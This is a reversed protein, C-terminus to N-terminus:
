IKKLIEYLYRNIIDISLYFNRRVLMGEIRYSKKTNNLCFVPSGSLGNLNFGSANDQAYQFTFLGKYKTPSPTTAMLPKRVTKINKSQYDIESIEKPFGTILLQECKLGPLSRKGPLEIVFGTDITSKFHSKAVKLFIIDKHDTDESDLTNVGLMEDFPLFYRSEENYRILIENADPSHRNNYLVHKATVAFILDEVKVLFSSGGITYPYNKDANHFMLMRGAQLITNLDHKKM